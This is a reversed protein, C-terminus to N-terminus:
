AEARDSGLELALMPVAAELLRSFSGAIRAGAAIVEDHSLAQGGIGAAHNTICSIACVRMGAARAALAECVTSMGVADVGFRGLMRVEAPTEYSPGLVGAYTGTTLRIGCRRAALDLVAGLQADYPSGRGAQEPVLPSQGQLNIHDRIRMLSPVMRTRDLGGAANTLVLGRCGLKAYARVALSVEMATWGEYLHVRGQQVLVRTPGIRGLVIRGAHGAVRGHPMGELEGFAIARPESVIDAFAGLGSGLVFALEVGACGHAALSQALADVASTTSM